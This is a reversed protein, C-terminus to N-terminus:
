EKIGSTAIGRIFWKQLILFLMIIPLSLLIVGAMTENPRIFNAAKITTLGVPLTFATSRALFTSPVLYANWCSTFDLIALTIVLPGSLPLVIKFYSRIYGIGDIRAAEILEDPFSMYYQRAMFVSLCNVLFPVILGINTNHWGLKAVMIYLPTLLIQFPIMLLAVIVTFIFNRGKFKFKALAYGGLLATTLNGLLTFVAVIITNKYWTLMPYKEFLTRYNDLTLDSLAPIENVKDFPVLSTILAYVLPVLFALALGILLIYKISKKVIAM